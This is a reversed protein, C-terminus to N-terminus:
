FAIDDDNNDFKNRKPEKGFIKIWKDVIKKINILCNRICQFYNENSLLMRTCESDSYILENEIKSYWDIIRKIDVMNDVLIGYDATFTNYFDKKQNEIEKETCGIVTAKPLNIECDERFPIQFRIEINDNQKISKIYNSLQSITSHMKWVHKLRWIDENDIVDFLDELKEIKDNLEDEKEKYNTEM